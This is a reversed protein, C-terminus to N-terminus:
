VLAPYHLPGGRVGPDIAKVALRRVWLRGAAEFAPYNPCPIEGGHRRVESAPGIRAIGRGDTDRAQVADTGDLV